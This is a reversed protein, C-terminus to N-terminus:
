RTRSVSDNEELGLRALAKRFYDRIRHGDRVRAMFGYDPRLLTLDEPHTHVDNFTDWLTKDGLDDPTDFERVRQITRQVTLRKNKTEIAAENMLPTDPAPQPTSVHSTLGPQRASLHKKKRVM